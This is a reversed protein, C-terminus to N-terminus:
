PWRRHPQKEYAGCTTRDTQTDEAGASPYCLRRYSSRTYLVSVLGADTFTQQSRRDTKPGADSRGMTLAFVLAPGEIPDIGADSPGRRSPRLRAQLGVM